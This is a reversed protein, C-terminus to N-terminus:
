ETIISNPLPALCLYYGGVLEVKVCSSMDRGSPYERPGDGCPCDKCKQSCVKIVQMGELEKLSDCTQSAAPAADHDVRGARAQCCADDIDADQVDQGCHHTYTARYEDLAQQLEDNTIQSACNFCLIEEGEKVGLGCSLYGGCKACKEGLRDTVLLNRLKTAAEDHCRDQQAASTSADVGVQAGDTPKFQAWDKIGEATKVRDRYFRIRDMLNSQVQEYATLQNRMLYRERADPVLEEFTLDNVFARISDAASRTKNYQDELSALLKKDSILAEKNM